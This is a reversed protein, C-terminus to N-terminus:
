EGGHDAKREAYRVAEDPVAPPREAAHTGAPLVLEVHLEDGDVDDAQEEVEADHLEDKDPHGPLDEQARIRRRELPVDRLCDRDDDHGHPVEARVLEPRKAM